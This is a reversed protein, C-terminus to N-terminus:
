MEASVNKWQALVTHPLDTDEVDVKLDIPLVLSTGERIFHKELPGMASIDFAPGNTDALPAREGPLLTFASIRVSSGVSGLMICLIFVGTVFCLISKGRM